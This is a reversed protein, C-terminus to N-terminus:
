WLKDILIGGLQYNRKPEIYHFTKHFQIETFM